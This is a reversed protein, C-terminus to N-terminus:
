VIVSTTDNKILFDDLLSKDAYGNKRYFIFPNVKFLKNNGRKEELFVHMSNVKLKRMKTYVTKETNGTIRAINNKNLFEVTNSEREHPNSCLYNTEYHVYPLLKYIFGLDKAKVDYYLDKLNRTYSKIFYQVETSGKWHYNGNLKFGQNVEILIKNNIMVKMFDNFADKKLGLTQKIDEKTMPNLNKSSKVILGGKNKYYVFCQIMLLYGCYKDEISNSIKEIELMSGCTFDPDKRQRVMRKHYALRKSQQESTIWGSINDAVIVGNNDIVKYVEQM